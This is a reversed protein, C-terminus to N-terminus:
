MLQDAVFEIRRAIFISMIFLALVASHLYILFGTHGRAGTHCQSTRGVLRVGLIIFPIVVCVFASNNYWVVNKSYQIAKLADRVLPSWASM